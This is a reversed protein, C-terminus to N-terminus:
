EKVATFVWRQSTPWIKSFHGGDVVSKVTMGVAQLGQLLSDKTHWYQTQVEDFRIYHDQVKEFFTLELRVAQKVPLQKNQWFYTLDDWDEYFLNNGLVTQLKYPTSVDFVLRGGSRLCDAIRGLVNPLEAPAIYNLGDCVCVVVDNGVTAVLRRIDQRSYTIRLGQQRSQAVATNLMDQSLDVGTMYAGRAALLRTIHGTGCCLDLGKDGPRVGIFDAYEEYPFDGMLRDYFRSWSGYSM